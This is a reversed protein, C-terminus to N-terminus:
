LTKQTADTRILLQCFDKTVNKTSLLDCGGVFKIALNKMRQLLLDTEIFLKTYLECKQDNIDRLLSYLLNFYRGVKKKVLLENNIPIQKFNELFRLVSRYVAERQSLSCGRGAQGGTLGYVNKCLKGLFEEFRFYVKNDLGIDCPQGMSSVEPKQSISAQQQLSAVHPQQHPLMVSQQIAQSGVITNSPLKATHKPAEPHLFVGGQVPFGSDRVHPTSSSPGITIPRISSIVRAYPLPQAPASLERNRMNLQTQQSNPMTQQASVGKTDLDALQEQRKGLLTEPDKSKPAASGSLAVSALGDVQGPPIVQYQPTHEAEPVKSKPVSNASINDAAILTKQSPAKVESELASPKSNLYNSIHVKQKFSSSEFQKSSSGTQLGDGLSDRTGFDSANNVDKRSRKLQCDELMNKQMEVITLNVKREFSSGHNIIEYAAKVARVMLKNGKKFYKTYGEEFQLM